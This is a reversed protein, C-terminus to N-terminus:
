GPRGVGRWGVLRRAAASVGPADELGGQERCRSVGGGSARGCWEPRWELTVCTFLVSGAGQVLELGQGAEAVAEGGEGGGRTAWPMTHVSM